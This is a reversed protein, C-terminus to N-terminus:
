SRPNSQTQQFFCDRFLLREVDRCGYVIRWAETVHYGESFVYLFDECLFNLVYLVSFLFLLFLLYAPVAIRKLKGLLLGRVNSLIMKKQEREIHYAYLVPNREMSYRLLRFSPEDRKVIM